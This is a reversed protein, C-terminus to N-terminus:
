TTTIVDIKGPIRSNLMALSEVWCTIRTNCSKSIPYQAMSITPAADLDGHTGQYWGNHAQRGLLGEPDRQRQKAHGGGNSADNCLDVAELVLLKELM